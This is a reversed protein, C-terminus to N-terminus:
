SREDTHLRQLRQFWGGFERETRLEKAVATELPILIEPIIALDAASLYTYLV